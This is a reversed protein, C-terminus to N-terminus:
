IETSNPLDYAPDEEDEQQDQRRLNYFMQSLLKKLTVSPLCKNIKQALNKSTLINEM